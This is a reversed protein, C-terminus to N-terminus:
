HAAAYAQWSPVQLKALNAEDLKVESGARLQQALQSLVQERREIVYLNRIRTATKENWTPPTLEVKAARLVYYQGDSAKVPGAVQGARRMQVVVRALEEEVGHGDDDVVALHGANGRSSEHVSHSAVLAAFEEDSAVAAKQLLAEARAPEKVVIASLHVKPKSLREKKEEFYRQLEAEGVAEASIGNRTLEQQIVAQVRTAQVLAPAGSPHIGSKAGERAFLRVRLAEELAAKRPDVPAEPGIRPPAPRLHLAVEEARIPAGDLWAVVDAQKTEAQKSCGATGALLVVTMFTGFRNGM